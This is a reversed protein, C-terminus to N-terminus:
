PESVPSTALADRLSAFQGARAQAAAPELGLVLHVIAARASGNCASLAAGAASRDCGAIEAVIGTARERLKINAPEVDVMLDGHVRGLRVMAATTLANLTIKQATGAGLRTSDRLVEPGVDLVIAVDALHALPSDPV